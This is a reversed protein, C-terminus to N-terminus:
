KKQFELLVKRFEERRRLGALSAHTELTKFDRYGSRLAERLVALAEDEYSKREAQEAASLEKKGAGVAAATVSLERAVYALEKGNEPWLKRRKRLAAAAPAPRGAAREAFALSGYRVGLSWRYGPTQPSREFTVRSHEVAKRLVNCSEEARGLRRLTSGLNGMTESLFHRDDLNDPAAAVLKEQVARSEQYSALAETRRGLQGQEVGVGFLARGLGRQVVFSSRDAAALQRWIAASKQRCSLAEAFQARSGYVSGLVEYNDALAQRYYTVSPNDRALQEHLARAQEHAKIAEPKKGTRDLMLGVSYWGTALANRYRQVRPYDSALRARLARAQEFLELAKRYQQQQEYLVGLNHLSGAVANHRRPNKPQEDALQRRLGLAREHNQRAEGLRGATRQLNGLSEYTSALQARVPVDKPHQEALQEFRQRAEKFSAFADTRRGLDSLVLALDHLTEAVKRRLRESGPDAALLQRYTALAKEYATRAEAKSGTTSAIHGVLVQVDAQEALLTPDDGRQRLFEQYYALVKRLMRRRLPQLGPVEELEIDVGNYFDKIAQHAQRFSEDAQREHAEARARLALADRVAQQEKRLSAEARDREFESAELNAQAEYGKWLSLGLGGALSLVLAASLGAVLPRRLCWRWLRRAPGAPRARIPEGALFRELDEALELASPYRRQPEKELCKLCVTELDRSLGPVRSGPRVPPQEAALRLTELPTAGKFPPRGTLLEYLIAGLAYIDAATTIGYRPGGAQEPAMYTPTGLIAGSQTLEGPTDEDPSAVFRKALGFDTVHPRGDRDLLINAPKLDRHLVGRQHAHYVARAVVATLRAADGQRAALTLTRPRGWDSPSHSAATLWQTLNGGEILKMSFFPQGDHQGVEYIPVINPHDFAAVAEAEVRFRQLDAASASSGARLMKLAVVRNASVQRARYVVGMGGRAIEELIQYGGLMQGSRTPGPGPRLVRLPAALCDLRDQDAFFASLEAALEPHSALLQQRNAAAGSRVAELYSALVEDLLQERDLQRTTPPM